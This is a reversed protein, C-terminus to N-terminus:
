SASKSRITPTRERRRCDTRRRGGRRGLFGPETGWFTRSYGAPCLVVHTPFENGKPICRLRSVRCFWFFGRLTCFHPSPDRQGENCRSSSSAGQHTRLLARGPSQPRLGWVVAPSRSAHGKSDRPIWTLRSVSSVYSFPTCRVFHVDLSCAGQHTCPSAKGPSRPRRGRVVASCRSAGASRLLTDFQGAKVLMIGAVVGRFIFTSPASRWSWATSSPNLWTSEHYTSVRTVCVHGASCRSASGPRNANGCDMFHGAKRPYGGNDRRSHIGKGKM